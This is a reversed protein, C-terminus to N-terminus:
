FFESSDVDCYKLVFMTQIIFKGVIKKHWLARVDDGGYVSAPVALIQAQAVRAGALLRRAVGTRADGGALPDPGGLHAGGPGRM